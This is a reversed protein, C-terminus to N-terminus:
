SDIKLYSLIQNEYTNNWRVGRIRVGHEKITKMIRHKFGHFNVDGGEFFIRNRQFWLEKIVTCSSVTWVEDIFPSHQKAASFVDSFSYPRPFQFINSIWNWVQVSFECLWLTHEMFDKESKFICCRSPMEYGQKRKMDDNVYVGQLLKWINSAITPHLSKRWIYSSWEVKDEKHRIKEVAKANNFLGSTHLNWIISDSGSHIQPLNDYQLLHQLQPHINWQNNRILNQVKLQMNNHIFETYGIENILPSSGYWNDFWVSINAGNGVKWSIDEQLTLWAWQLGLGGENYPVCIKKWSLTKYKRIEGDGSWIFNRILKECIKIVSSPWKYVAMNYLPYSCLVTKVLILRDHFSLLKGKWTALKSQLMLVMPWVMETTVRGPALIIGLYKDPFCSIDMGIISSIQHKRVSNTGDIFCKSKAKNIMQGSSHQYKEILKFLCLLTKKAGNCFLFVDNAFFLHTPYIRNRVVMPTIQGTNVLNTINRSLVDEMLIFLIPSLPDGQKLGRHMSFFGCPGGNIMVSLKASEFISLLWNCWSSSFGYKCMVKLLFTWSVFDYAQSIDLKLAVNGGRRKKRMKNVMESALLIQEQISRGKVYAAQQSSILKEMLGNMRVSIIKTFIKFLVNSLGIPRYQSPKKASKYFSGPFGDPGPASDSNMEFVIKKIEETTPISDLMEQDENTIVSPIVDLLEESVDVNQAEFKQQFHKVLINAIQSQDSIINGDADELESITNRAQRIKMRAHFYATNASGDKIWKARSELRMLTNAQVERTAYENQAAVLNALLDENLPNQDSLEMAKQVKVEAEKIKTNINGFISWNWESLVKKLNKLKQLFIFSPDGIINETWVKKVESLFLPHDIWMKQFKWPVNKPRPISACGCLLPAHDSIIRLGVKYGWDGYKQLWLSNFVAKDLVCLIRKTGQQCNSWTYQQGTSPSQILNCENLFHLFDMMSSRNPAKGGFKEEPSIIANLDGQNQRLNHKKNTVIPNGGKVAGPYHQSTSTISTPNIVQKEVVKSWSTVKVTEDSITGTKGNVFKIQPTEVVDDKKIKMLWLIKLFMKKFVNLLVSDELILLTFLKILQFQQLLMFQISLQAKM